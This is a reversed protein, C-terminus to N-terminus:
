EASLEIFNNYRNYRALIKKKLKPPIVMGNSEMTSIPNTFYRKRTKLFKKKSTKIPSSPEKKYAPMAGIKKVSLLEFVYHKQTDYLKVIAGPLGNFKFPGVPLPLTKSFWAVYHRGAFDTKAKQCPIKNITMTDKTIQWEYTLPETYVYTYRGDLGNDSVTSTRAALDNKIAFHFSTKPYTELKSMAEAFSLKKQDILNKISDSLMKYKSIFYTQRNDLDAYLYMIESDVWELNTSDQHATMQYTLKYNQAFLAIQFLCFSLSFITKKM